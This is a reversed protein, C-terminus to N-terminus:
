KQQLAAKCRMEHSLVDVGIICLKFVAFCDDLSYYLCSLRSKTSFRFDLDQWNSGRLIVDFLTTLRVCTLIISLSSIHLVALISPFMHCSVSDISVSFFTDQSLRRLPIWQDGGLTLWRGRNQRAKAM